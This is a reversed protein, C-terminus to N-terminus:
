ARSGSGRPPARHVANAGLAPRSDLRRSVGDNRVVRQRLDDAASHADCSSVPARVYTEDSREPRGIMTLMPAILERSTAITVPLLAAGTKAFSVVWSAM